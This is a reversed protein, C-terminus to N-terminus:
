HMSYPHLSQQSSQTRHHTCISLRLRVLECHWLAIHAKAQWYAHVWARCFLGRMVPSLSDFGSTSAQTQKQATGDCAYYGENLLEAEDADEDCTLDCDSVAVGLLVLCGTCVVTFAILIFALIALTAKYCYSM